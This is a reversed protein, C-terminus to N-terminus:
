LEYMVLDTTTKKKELNWFLLPKCLRVSMFMGTGKSRM